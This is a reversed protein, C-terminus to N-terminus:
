RVILALLPALKRDHINLKDKERTIFSVTQFTRKICQLLLNITPPHSTFKCTEKSQTFFFIVEYHYFLGRRTQETPCYRVLTQVISEVGRTSFRKNWQTKVDRTLMDLARHRYDRRATNMRPLYRMHLLAVSTQGLAKAPSYRDVTLM